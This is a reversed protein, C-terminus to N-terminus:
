SALTCGQVNQNCLMRCEPNRSARRKALQDVAVLQERIRCTCLGNLPHGASLVPRSRRGSARAAWAARRNHPGAEGLTLRAISDNVSATEVAGGGNRTVQTPEILTCRSRPPHPQPAEHLNAPLPDATIVHNGAQIQHDQLPPSHPRVEQNVM